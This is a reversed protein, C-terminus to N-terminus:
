LLPIFIKKTFSSKQSWTFRSIFISDKILPYLVCVDLLIENRKWTFYNIGPCSIPSKSSLQRQKLRYQKL